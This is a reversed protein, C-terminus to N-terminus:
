ESMQLTYDRGTQIGIVYASWNEWPLTRNAMSDGLQAWTQYPLTTLEPERSTVRCKLVAAYVMGIHHRGVDNSDDILPLPRSMSQIDDLTLERTTGDENLAWVEEILERLASNLLTGELDLAGDLYAYAADLDAKDFYVFDSGAVHGGLGISCNGLLRDEGIGKGRQYVYVSEEYGNAGVTAVTIYPIFHRITPDNELTVRKASILHDHTAALLTDLGVANVGQSLNLGALAADKVGIIFEQQKRGLNVAWALPHPAHSTADTVLNRTDTM